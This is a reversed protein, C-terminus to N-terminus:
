GQRVCIRRGIIDIQPIIECQSKGVAGWARVRM